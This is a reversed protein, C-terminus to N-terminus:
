AGFGLKGKEENLISIRQELTEIEKDIDVVGLEKKVHLIADARSTQFNNEKYEIKEDIISEAFKAFEKRQSNNIRNNNSM